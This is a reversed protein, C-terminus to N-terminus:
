PEAMKGDLFNEETVTSSSAPHVGSVNQIM